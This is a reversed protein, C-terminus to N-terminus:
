KSRAGNIIIPNKLKDILTAVSAMGVGGGVVCANSRVSFGNGYVGRIGVKDGKKLSDLAKTFNGLTQFTFAFENKDHYSVAMPKEDVGPLWVMIFQGPKSDLSHKFFFSKLGKGEKVIKSIELLKPVETKRSKLNIM